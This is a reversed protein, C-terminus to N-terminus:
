SAAEIENQSTITDLPNQFLLNTAQRSPNKMLDVHKKELQINEHQDSLLMSVRDKEDLPYDVVHKPM